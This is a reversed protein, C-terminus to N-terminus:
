SVSFTAPSGSPIGPSSWGSAARCAGSHRCTMRRAQRPPTAERALVRPHSGPFSRRCTRPRQRKATRCRCTPGCCIGCRSSATWPPLALTTLPGGGRLGVHMGAGGAPAFSQLTFLAMAAAARSMTTVADRKVFHDANKRLAQGGPADILLTEVRNTQGAFDEADQMFRPGDGDLVFAHSLPAFAAHLTAPSPPAKWWGAWSDDDDAPPCATALLGILFELGALRFDPRPWDLSVIPDADIKDTIDCPRIAQTQGSARRVPLWAEALLSFAM